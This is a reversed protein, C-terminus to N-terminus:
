SRYVDYSAGMPSGTYGTIAFGGDKTNIMSYAYERNNGGYTQTWDLTGNGLTKVLYIDM